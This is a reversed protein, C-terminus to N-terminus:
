TKSSMFFRLQPIDASQPPCSPLPRVARGVTSNGGIEIGSRATPSVTMRSYGGRGKAPNEVYVILSHWFFSLRSSPQGSRWVGRWGEVHERLLAETGAHKAAALTSAAAAPLEAPTIGELDTHVAAVFRRVSRPTVVRSLSLERWRGAWGPQACGPQLDPTHMQQRAAARLPNM